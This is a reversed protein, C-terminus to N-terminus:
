GGLPDASALQWVAVGHVGLQHALAIRRQYSRADSWWMTGSPIKASWEGAGHHWVAKSGALQRAKADSVTRGARRSTWLYGYGAIGLDVRGAGVADILPRATRGAWPLAGVPGPGSWGPGHQDYAMLVFRQVHRLAGLAYGHRGYAAQSTEAMVAMSITAQEPLARHLARVFASLGARDHSALSELDIQIGDWGQRRVVHALAAAVDTRHAPSALMRHALAPDFDGLSDSYNSVLLEATDGHEHAARLVPPSAGPVHTIGDADSTVEVGDVGAVDVTGADGLYAARGGGWGLVYGEVALSGGPGTTAAAPSVRGVDYSLPLALALLAGLGLAVLRVRPTQM